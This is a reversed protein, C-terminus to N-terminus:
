SFSITTGVTISNANAFGGKAELVLNAKATPQYNPCLVSVACGPVSRVLYVVQGTGGAASIWIIDLTSNVDYMWFSYYDSTPFVFLETTSNTVKTDMLGRQRASENEALYTLHFSRGGVTFSTYGVSANGSENPQTLIGYSAVVVLPIILAALVILTRRNM